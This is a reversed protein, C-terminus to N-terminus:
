IINVLLRITTGKGPQTTVELLGKIERARKHMNKLGNRSNEATIDFGKGNDSIVLELQDGMRNVWLKMETCCAHKLLNNVAEKFVLFINKRVEMEVKTNLIDRPININFSINRAELLPIAFERMRVALDKFHDNHPDVTWIIDDMADLMARSNSSIHDIIGVIKEHPAKEHLQKNAVESFISISSLASGMDDHFDSAIRERIREIALINKVRYLYLRYLAFAVALVLLLRFWWTEWYPPKIVFSFSALHKNWTGNKNGSQVYFTYGGPPLQAYNASRLDETYQWGADAGTLKYRFTIHDPDTFLFATFSINISNDSHKLTLKGADNRNTQALPQNNVYVGEILPDSPLTVNKLAPTFYAYGNRFGFVIDNGVIAFPSRPYVQKMSSENEALASVGSELHYNLIGSSTGTWIIDDVNIVNACSPRFVGGITNINKFQKTQKNFILIGTGSCCVLRNNSANAIDFLFYDTWNRNDTYIATKKRAIDYSFVGNRSAIWLMGKECFGDLLIYKLLEPRSKSQTQAAITVQRSALDYKFLGHNTTIYCANDDALIIGRITCILRLSDPLPLPKQSLVGSLPNWEIIKKQSVLIWKSRSVQVFDYVKQTEPDTDYAKEIKKTRWDVSLMGKNYSSLWVRTSDFKDRAIKSIGLSGSGDENLFRMKLQQNTIDLMSVGLDTSLWLRGYKDAYIKSVINNPISYPNDDSHVYTYEVKKSTTNFLMLGTGETAIFLYKKEKDAPLFLMDNILVDKLGSSEITFDKRNKLIFLGYNTGFFIDAGRKITSFIKVLSRNYTLTFASYNDNKIDYLYVKERSSVFVTNEDFLYICLPDNVTKLSTFSIKLSQLDLKALGYECAFWLYNNHVYFASVSKIDRGGGAQVYIFKGQTDDYYCLGASSIWVRGKGDITAGPNNARIGGRKPDYSNFDTTHYGDFREIGTGCAWMYGKNDLVLDSIESSIFHNQSNFNEFRWDPNPTFGQAFLDFPIFLLLINFVFKTM